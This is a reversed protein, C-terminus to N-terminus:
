VQVEELSPSTELMNHAASLQDVAEISANLNGANMSNNSWTSNEMEVQIANELAVAISKTKNADTGIGSSVESIQSCLFTNKESCPHSIHIFYLYILSLM